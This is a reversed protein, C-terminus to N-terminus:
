FNKCGQPGICYMAIKAPGPNLVTSPHRCPKSGDLLVNGSIESLGSTMKMPEVRSERAQVARFRDASFGSITLTLYACWLRLSSARGVRKVRTRRRRAAAMSSRLVDPLTGLGICCPDCADKEEEGDEAGSIVSVGGLFRPRREFVVNDGSIVAGREREKREDVLFECDM